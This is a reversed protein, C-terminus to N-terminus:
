FNLNMNGRRMPLDYRLKAFDQVYIEKTINQDKEMKDYDDAMVHSIMSQSAWLTVVNRMFDDTESPSIDNIKLFENLM